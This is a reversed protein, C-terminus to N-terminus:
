TSREQKEDNEEEAELEALAEIKQKLRKARYMWYKARITDVDTALKSYIELALAYSDSNRASEEEYIEALFSYLYPSQIHNAKMELCADKLGPFSSRSRGILVGSLYNWASENNPAKRIFDLTYKVERAVVEESFGSTNVIVFYRQNWASNNRLDEKLLIDVYQLEDDWLKFEKLIWQRHGWAHYNKADKELIEETFDLENSADGSWGIVIRRHYWVQYNKPEWDIISSVFKKEEELDKDLAKLLIRRYHWVTYNAPNLNAAVGTLELARESREGAKLVARFYDFCDQFKESYAIRVVPNPGDDQPVPQVDNWEPRDRFLAHSDIGLDSDSDSM